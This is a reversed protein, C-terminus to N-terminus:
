NQRVARVSRGDYRSRYSMDQGGPYFDFSWADFPLDADRSSSWYYGYSGALDLESGWRYGAAPLFLTNGNAATFKRGGVGNMQTWEVTTTNILERWEDATPMRAGNGLAATAADDVAQLTTLNDTFGNYGYSSNDCYKTLTNYSGNCYTYTSWNYVEKTTTEGWAYYNGYEEPANAGLNCTAWLLGSPLGLDVYGDPVPQPQPGPGPTPNDGPNYPNPDNANSSFLAYLTMDSGVTVTRPNSVAGDSWKIFYYGNAPVAEVDVRDGSNYTGSGTAIGWDPNNPQVTLTYRANAASSGGNDDDKGCSTMALAAVMAVFAIIRATRKMTSINSSTPYKGKTFFCLAWRQM